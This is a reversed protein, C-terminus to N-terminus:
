NGTPVYDYKDQKQHANAIKTCTKVVVTQFQQGTLCKFPYKLFLIFPSAVLCIAISKLLM